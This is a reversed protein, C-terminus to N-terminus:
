YVSIRRASAPHLAQCAAPIYTHEMVVLSATGDAQMGHLRLHCHWVVSGDRVKHDAASLWDRKQARRQSATNFECHCVCTRVCVYVCVCVCVCAFVCVCGKAGFCVKACICMCVFVCMHLCVYVNDHVCLCVKM